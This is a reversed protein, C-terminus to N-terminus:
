QSGKKLPKWGKVGGPESARQPPAPTQAPTASQGIGPASPAPAPDEDEVVWSRVPAGPAGGAPASGGSPQGAGAAGTGAGGGGGGPGSTLTVGSPLSLPPRAGVAQQGGGAPSQGGAGGGPGALLMDRFPQADADTIFGRDLAEKLLAMWMTQQREKGASLMQLVAMTDGPHRLLHERIASEDSGDLRGQMRALQQADLQGQLKDADLVRTGEIIRPDSRFKATTHLVTIGNTLVAPQALAARAAAEAQAASQPPFRRAVQWLQDQLYGLVMPDGHTVQSRVVADIDTVRWAANIEVTFEYADDSSQVTCNRAAHHESTDVLYCYMSGWRDGASPMGSYREIRGDKYLVVYIHSAHGKPPPRFFGSDVSELILGSSTPV